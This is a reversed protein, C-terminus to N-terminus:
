NKTMIMDGHGELIKASKGSIDYVTIDEDGSVAVKEKDLWYGTTGIQEMPFSIFKTNDVKAIYCSKLSYSCTQYHKLDPSISSLTTINKLSEIESLTGKEVNMNYYIAKCDGIKDCSNTLETTLIIEEGSLRKMNKYIQDIKEPVFSLIKTSGDKSLSMIDFYNFQDGKSPVVYIFKDGQWLATKTSNYIYNYPARAVTNGSTDSIVIENDAAVALQGNKSWNMSFIQSKSFIRIEAKSERDLIRLDEQHIYENTDVNKTRQDYISALFRGDPSISQDILRDYNTKETVQIPKKLGVLDGEWINVDNDTYYFKGSLEIPKTKSDSIIIKVQQYDNNIILAPIIISILFSVIIVYPKINKKFHLLVSILVCCFPLLYLSYYSFQTLNFYHMDRLMAVYPPSPYDFFGSLPYLRFTVLGVLSATLAGLLSFTTAKLDRVLLWAVILSGSIFYTFLRFEGISSTLMSNVVYAWFLGFINLFLTVSLIKNIKFEAEKFILLIISFILLFFILLISLWFIWFEFFEM